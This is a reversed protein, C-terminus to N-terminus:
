PPINKYQNKKHQNNLSPLKERYNILILHAFKICLIKIKDKSSWKRKVGNYQKVYLWLKKDKKFAINQHGSTNNKALTKNGMNIERSVWRLNSIRNNLPNRDIHDIYPYNNPNPIYHLAILRHNLFFKTKRNETLGNALYGHNMLYNKLFRNTKKSFVRGDEYILYNPFGNIEM